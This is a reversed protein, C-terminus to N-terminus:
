STPSSGDRARHAHTAHRHLNVGRRLVGGQHGLDPGPHLPRFGPRVGPGPRPRHRERTTGLVAVVALALVLPPFALGADTGRMLLYDIRGGRYGAVLGIILALVLALGVTEFTVQMSIRAGYILRSLVDRGLDDTGLWHSASM